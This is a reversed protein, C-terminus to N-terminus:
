NSGAPKRPPNVWFVRVGTRSANEEVQSMKAEDVDRYGVVPPSSACGACLATLLSGLFLRM